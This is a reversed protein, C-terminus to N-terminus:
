NQEINKYLLLKYTLFLSRIIAQYRTLRQKMRWVPALAPAEAGEEELAAGEAVVV